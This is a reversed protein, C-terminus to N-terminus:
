MILRSEQDDKDMSLLYHICAKLGTLWIATASHNVRQGPLGFTQAVLITLHLFRAKLM